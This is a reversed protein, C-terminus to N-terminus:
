VNGYMKVLLFWFPVPVVLFIRVSSHLRGLYLPVACFMQFFEWRKSDGGNVNGEWFYIQLFTKGLFSSNHLGGQLLLLACFIQFIESIEDESIVDTFKKRAWFHITWFNRALKKGAFLSNHLKRLLLLVAACFIQFIESIGDEPIM